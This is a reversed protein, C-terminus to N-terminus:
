EFHYLNLDVLHRMTPRGHPCNWPHDMKSLNMLIARIESEKLPQGIMISKRCARSAFMQRIRSPRIFKRDALNGEHTESLLYLIEEIDRIGFSWNRSMPTTVIKVVKLSSGMPAIATAENKCDNEAEFNFGNKRLIDMNETLLSFSEHSLEMSMPSILTQTPVNSYRELQEFNYKEDSAHQDIIFLDSGLQAIIFGLNFQGIVQMQSFSQKSLVSRLENEANKDDLKSVFKRQISEATENKDSEFFNSYFNELSSFSTEKRISLLHFPIKNPFEQDFDFTNNQSSNQSRRDIQDDVVIEVEHPLNGDTHLCNERHNILFGSSENDINDSMQEIKLKKSWSTIKEPSSAFANFGRNESNLKQSQSFPLNEEIEFATKSKGSTAPMNQSSKPQSSFMTVFNNLTNQSDTLPTRLTDSLTTPQSNFMTQGKSTQFKMSIQNAVFNGANAKFLQLASFKIIALLTKENKLFINRKDPTVNVDFNGQAINVFLCVFPYQATNFQHYVENLIKAIKPQECSRKNLFFLQRDQTSRGCGHAPSSIVGRIEVLNFVEDMQASNAIGFQAFEEEAIRQTKWELLADWQKPGFISVISMKLSSNADGNTSLVLQKPRGENENMCTFKINPFGIAFAQLTHVFKAYEKKINKKLDKSRVPFRAFINQAQVSTGIEMPLGSTKIIQGTSNYTLRHGIESTAHRTTITLDSLVCLASLAEGRFGFTDVAEIDLYM